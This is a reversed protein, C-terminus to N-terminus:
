RMVEEYLIFLGHPDYTIDFELENYSPIIDKMIEDAKNDDIVNKFEAEVVPVRGDFVNNITDAIKMRDINEIEDLRLKTLM